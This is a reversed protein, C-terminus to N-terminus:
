SATSYCAQVVWPRMLLPVYICVPGDNLLCAVRGVSRRSPSLPPPTLQCVLLVIGDDTTPLRGKSALEQIELFSPCQHSSFVFFTPKNPRRGALFSTACPPTARLSSRNSAHGTLTRVVRPPSGSSCNLPLASPMWTPRQPPRSTLPPRFDLFFLDCLSPATAAPRFPNRRPLRPPLLLPRPVRPPTNARLTSSRPARGPRFGDDVTPPATGTAAATRRRTRTSICGSPPLATPPALDSPPASTAPDTISASNVGQTTSTPSLVHHAFATAAAPVDASGTRGESPVAFVSAFAPKPPMCFQKTAPVATSPPSPPLYM